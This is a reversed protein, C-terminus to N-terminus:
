FYAVQRWWHVLIVLCSIGWHRSGTEAVDILRQSAGGAVV